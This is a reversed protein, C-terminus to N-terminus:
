SRAGLGAARSLSVRGQSSEVVWGGPRLRDRFQALQAESWGPATLTLKGPEFRLAQAPGQGAPWATAAAGILAELDGDGPQGAAARLAETEREMQLPADLVARVQPFTSRLLQEQAARGEAVARRQQWAWANLGLLQLVVLAALGVRAPRWAPGTWRRLANRLALTGRHRPALDFQRLNWLSRAAQLAREAETLVQVSSGLWREAPAAVAPEATWRTPQASMPALWARSLSGELRLLSLGNADAHCLMMHAADGAAGAPEFFHGQPADGPWSAPLVREVSLGCKELLQLQGSLWAKHVAAVWAPQGAQAGPALALHVADDDDLLEDELLGGLAARLKAAPAKPLDIRHWGVDADALVALVTDARPLQSAPARGHRSVQAGDHSLAYGYQQGDAAPAADGETARAAIRPRPPLLIVLVSM